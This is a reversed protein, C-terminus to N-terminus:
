RRVPVRRATHAERARVCGTRLEELVLAAHRPLPAALARDLQDAALGYAGREMLELAKVAHLVSGEPVTQPSRQLGVVEVWPRGLQASRVVVRLAVRDHPRLRALRRELAGGRRVFARAAPAEYEAADWLLQEDAWCAIGAFGEPAFRTQYPEWPALPSHFQLHLLEARGLHSEPNQTLEEWTVEPLPQALVAPRVTSLAFALAASLIVDM